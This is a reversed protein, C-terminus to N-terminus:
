AHGFILAEGSTPRLLCSLMSIITSKGAGNPGLLSFVEGERVAFSVGRVAELEGFRKRLNQAEIAAARSAAPPLAPAAAPAALPGALAAEDRVPPEAITTSM